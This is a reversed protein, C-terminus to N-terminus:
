LKAVHYYIPPYQQDTMKSYSRLTRIQLAWSESKGNNSKIKKWRIRLSHFFWGKHVRIRRIRRKNFLRIAIAYLAAHQATRNAGQVQAVVEFLDIGPESMTLLSHWHGNSPVSGRAYGGKREKYVLSGQVDLDASPQTTNIGIRGGQHFVFQKEPNPGTFSLVKDENINELSLSWLPQPDTIKQYISLVDNADKSPALQLGHEADKSFGDDIKNVTSDILDSFDSESLLSGKKFSKKLTARNRLNM